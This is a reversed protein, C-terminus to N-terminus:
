KIGEELHLLAGIEASYVVAHRGELSTVKIKKHIEDVEVVMIRSTAGDPATRGIGFKGQQEQPLCGSRRELLFFNGLTDDIMLTVNPDCETIKFAEILKAEAVEVSVVTVDGRQTTQVFSGGDDAGTLAGLVFYTAGGIIAGGLILSSVWILKNM